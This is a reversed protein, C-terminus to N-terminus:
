DEEFLLRRMRVSLPQALQLEMGVAAKQKAGLREEKVSGPQITAPGLYYFQKGVADSRKVFLHLKVRPRGHEDTALLRQVEPSSLHRPSRTYWRLSRGNELQNNYIANRRQDDEKRYTIFIPCEQEGVRYGYMPASVDLPWNLLRCVDKRDYQQYITFQQSADYNESLALGTDVADNVLEGFQPHAALAAALAPALRYDVLGSHVVLPTGGYQDRRTQKGAKVAFFRLSLIDDVSQLVAPSVYAGRKRLAAVLEEQSCQHEQATLLLKLLVLEHPRKGNVLEKTLFSLVAREHTTLRVPEGMRALFEGYNALRSNEAFVLPSVEGYRYFDFLLPPRGLRRHLDQYATRLERLSDLKIAALSQLIREAAVRRFTITSVGITAPLQVEQRARDAQRSTDQNLALPILFNNQYNGIFDLVTVYDKGPFKRLGRGLQQTFVVASQTNRLMIIQNLSPIDVGENFLDVTVIYEINGAELRQVARQRRRPSDENTLAIAPHGAASFKAALERAEEQRSCFILGRAQSGCYGYYDMQDLIYRVRQDSVLYRLGTTETVVEGDQEYDQVGVYHFPALMGAALAEKLRVEYALHYDFLAYVDQKDMREPTATMGLWFQPQFHDFLDQYSPATARHAEDILIYDFATAAFKALTGPQSLTQVTAFLYKADWDHRNGTLLGYDSASGDIVRRFSALTKKAIQERHVVYLFRRPRFDKVAFAGLYTKGTGTASVVLGRHAGSALLQRLSALAARQMQNAAIPAAPAPASQKAAPLPQWEAQYAALWQATLPQSAQSLAALQDSLQKTLSADTRSSVRLAWETNQLLAARTFNASGIVATQYDGHDFLYGKAHFGPQGVIRVTLNPIKMLEAFTQPTNFGLYDGTLLTGSVGQEALDALLAKLPVLMDTTIFAVAWTFHRCHQLEDQITQWITSAAQNTVLQPTLLNHGPYDQSYLGNLIAERIVTNKDM